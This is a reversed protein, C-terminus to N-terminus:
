SVSSKKKGKLTSFPSLRHDRMYFVAKSQTLNYFLIQQNKSYVPKKTNICLYCNKKKKKWKYLDPSLQPNPDM